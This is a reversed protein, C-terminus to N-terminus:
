CSTLFRFNAVANGKMAARYGVGKLILKKTFGETVGIVMNNVLARLVRKRMQKRSVKVHRLVVANDVLNLEVAHNITRSM